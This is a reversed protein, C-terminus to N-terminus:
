APYGLATLGLLDKKVEGEEGIDATVIDTMVVISAAAKAHVHASVKAYRHLIVASLLSTHRDM